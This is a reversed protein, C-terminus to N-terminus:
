HRARSKRSGQERTRSGCYPIKRHRHWRICVAEPAHVFVKDARDLKPSIREHTAATIAGDPHPVTLQQTSEANYM